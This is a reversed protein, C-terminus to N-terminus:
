SQEDLAGSAARSAALSQLRRRVASDGPARAPALPPYTAPALRSVVRLTKSLDRLWAIGTWEQRLSRMYDTQDLTIPSFCVLPKTAETRVYDDLATFNKLKRDIDTAAPLEEAFLV